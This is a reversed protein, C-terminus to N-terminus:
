SLIEALRLRRALVRLAAACQLPVVANGLQALRDRRGALWGASGDALDRFRSEAEEPVDRGEAMEWGQFSWGQQVALALAREVASM